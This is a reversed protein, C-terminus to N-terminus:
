ERGATLLDQKKRAYLTNMAHKHPIGSSDCDFVSESFDEILWDHYYALLQGSRWLCSHEENEPPPAIFPKEVFVNFAHLGSRSTHSRYDDIIGDRMEPKIYHLVGSSYLIDYDFDLRYDGIDAAFANVSVNAKEALRKLKEIGAASQDFATVDYGCRAFFVADKGEGCGIDLIRAPRGRLVSKVVPSMKNSRGQRLLTSLTDHLRVREHPSAKEQCLQIQQFFHDFTM